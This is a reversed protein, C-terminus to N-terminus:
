GEPEGLFLGCDACEGNVLAGTHGCAPCTITSDPITESM